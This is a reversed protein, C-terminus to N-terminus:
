STGRDLVKRFRKADDSEPDAMRIELSAPIRNGLSERDIQLGMATCVQSVADIPASCVEEYKLSIIKDSFGLCQTEIDSYINYIQGLIQEEVPLNKLEHYRSPKTSFWQREDGYYQRRARLISVANSLIDRQTILFFSNPFIRNMIGPNVFLLKNKFFIPKMSLSIMAHVERRLGMSDIDNIADPPLLDTDGRPKLWYKWFYSFEHPDLFGATRGLDSTFTYGTKNFTEKLHLLEELYMGVFPAMWFRAVFNDIYTFHGSAAMLQTLLTTGSRPAGIIFVVPINLEPINAIHKKELKQLILNFNKLFEEDNFDKRYRPTVESM